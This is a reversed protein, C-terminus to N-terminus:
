RYILLPTELHNGPIRQLQGSQFYTVQTKSCQVLFYLYRHTSPRVTALPMLMRRRPVVGQLQRAGNAARPLILCSMIQCLNHVSCVFYESLLYLQQTIVQQWRQVLYSTPCFKHVVVCEIMIEIVSSVM